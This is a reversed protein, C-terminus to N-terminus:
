GEQLARAEELDASRRTSGSSPMASSPVLLILVVALVSVAFIALFTEHLSNQLILQVGESHLVPQGASQLIRKLQETVHSDTVSAATLGHSLVAGFVSAGLTSGLNRSFINSATAAGREGPVVLHQILMLASISIFGM